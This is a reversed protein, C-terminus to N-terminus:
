AEAGRRFRMARRSAVFLITKDPDGPKQFAYLDTIHSRADMSTPSIGLGSVHHAM